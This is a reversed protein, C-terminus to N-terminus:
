SAELAWPAAELYRRVEIVPGLLRLHEPDPVLVEFDPNAPHLEVRGQRLRLRKVTAQDEVMAVVIRGSEVRPQQRVLVLDGDLIGADRMSAGEVRLAFIKEKRYSSSIPLYGLPAEVAEAWNGAPVTGLVPALDRPQRAPTPLALGRAKGERRVLRGENHLTRLHGRVTELARLGLATQIERLTPPNGELIRGRIFEYVRERTQGQPTRAM